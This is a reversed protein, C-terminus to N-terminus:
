GAVHNTFRQFVASLHTQFGLGVHVLALKNGVFHDDANDLLSEGGVVALVAEDKVAEGSGNRLGLSQVRHANVNLIDDINIHCVFDDGLTHGSATNALIAASGVM